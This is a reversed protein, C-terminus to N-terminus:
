PHAESLAPAIAHLARQLSRSAIGARIALRALELMARPGGLAHRLAPGLYSAHVQRTFAPLEVDMADVIARVALWPVGHDRAARAASLSELDVALRGPRALARKDDATAAVRRACVLEGVAVRGRAELARRTVDVLSDPADVHEGAEDCVRTALVVDGSRLWPDLAGSFGATIVLRPQYAIIAPAIDGGVGVALAVVNGSDVRMSSPRDTVALARAVARLEAPLAVAVLIPHVTWDGWASTERPELTGQRREWIAHAKAAFDEGTLAVDAIDELGLRIRKDAATDFLEVHNSGRDYVFGVLKSGDHRRLTVFGRYELAREVLEAIRAETM